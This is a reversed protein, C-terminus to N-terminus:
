FVVQAYGPAPSFSLASINVIMFPRAAFWSNYLITHGHVLGLLRHIGKVWRVFLMSSCLNISYVTSSCALQNQYGGVVHVIPLPPSPLIVLSLFLIFSHIFSHISLKRSWNSPRPDINSVSSNSEKLSPPLIPLFCAQLLKGHTVQLKGSNMNLTLRTGVKIWWFIDRQWMKALILIGHRTIELM